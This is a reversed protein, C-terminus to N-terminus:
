IYLTVNVTNVQANLRALAQLRSVPSVSIRTKFVMEVSDSVSRVEKFTAWFLNGHERQEGLIDM